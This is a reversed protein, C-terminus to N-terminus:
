FKRDQELQLSTKGDPAIDFSGVEFVKSLDELSFPEKKLRKRKSGQGQVM